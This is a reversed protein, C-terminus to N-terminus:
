FNLFEFKWVYSRPMMNVKSTSKEICLSSISLGEQHEVLQPSCWLNQVNIHGNVAKLFEFIWIKLFMVPVDHQSGCNIQRNRPVCHYYLCVRKTELRDPCTGCIKSALIVTLGTVTVHSEFNRYKLINLIKLIM